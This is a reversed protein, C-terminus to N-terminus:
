RVFIMLGRALRFFRVTGDEAAVTEGTPTGANATVTAGAPVVAASQLEEAFKAADPTWPRGMWFAIRGGAGANGNGGNATVVATPRIDLRGADVLIGGGAGSSGTATAAAAGNATVTGAIRMRGQTSLYIYGGGRNKNNVGANIHGAGGSGALMPRDADDYALGYGPLSDALCGKGGHGGGVYRNAGSAAFHKGCGPGQGPNNHHESGAFGRTDASLLAGEAVDLTKFAFAFSAGNECDSVSYLSSGGALLGKGAVSVCGGFAGGLGNTPSAYFTAVAGADLLLDGQVSLHRPIAESSHFQVQVVAHVPAAYEDAGFIFRSATKADAGGTLKLDGRVVLNTTQGGFRVFANSVTLADIEVSRQEGVFLEGSLLAHGIMREDPLWVSGPYGGNYTGPDARVALAAATTQQAPDYHIAIRGGGASYLDGYDSTGGNACIMGTGAIRACTVLVSGGSGAGARGYSGGRSGNATVTGNVSVCGTADIRVAGGGPRCSDKWSDSGIPCGSSGPVTPERVSGYPTPLSIKGGGIGGHSAPLTYLATDAGPRRPAGPGYGDRAAGSSVTDGYGRGNVDISGGAAVTLNECVIWVRNSPTFEAHVADTRDWFPGACTIKAGDGVEVTEAEIRTMWEQCVITMGAGLTLHALKATSRNLMITQAVASTVVVTDGADPVDGSWNAPDSWDGGETGRWECTTPEHRAAKFNAQLTKPAGEMPLVIPSVAAAEGSASGTWGSFIWDAGDPVATVTVSATGDVWHAGSSVVPSDGVRVKGHDGASVTLLYEDRWDWVLTTTNTFSFTATTGSGREGIGDANSVYWGCLRLRHTADVPIATEGDDYEVAGEPMTMTATCTEGFAAGQVVGYAPDSTGYRAGSSETRWTVNPTQLIEIEGITWMKSTIEPMIQFRYHSYATTNGFLTEFTKGSAIDGIGSQEDLLTWSEGDNSGFFRWATWGNAASGKYPWLRYGSVIQRGDKFQYQIWHEGSATSTAWGTTFSNNFANRAENPDNIVDSRSIVNKQADQPVTIDALESVQVVFLETTGEDTSSRGESDTVVLKVTYNGTRLVPNEGVNRGDADPGSVLIMEYKAIEAGGLARSGNDLVQASVPGAGPTERAVSASTKANVVPSLDQEEFSDFFELANYYVRDTVTPVYIRYYSYAGPNKVFYVRGEKASFAPEKTVTHLDTWSSGDNSGQFVWGSQVKSASAGSCAYIRYGLVTPTATQFRYSVWQGAGTNSIFHNDPTAVPDHDDFARAGTNSSFHGGDKIENLDANAPATIDLLMGPYVVHFTATDSTTSRNESDTVALRVTYTGVALEPNEGVNTEATVGPGTVLVMEYKAITAGEAATSGDDLIRASVAAAAKDARYIGAHPKVRAVPENESWASLVLGGFAFLFSLCLRIRSQM